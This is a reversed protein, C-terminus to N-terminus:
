CSLTKKLSRYKGARNSAACTLPNCWRKKSNKTKDLFLSGCQCKKICQMDASQLLDGAQKIIVWLPAAMEENTRFWMEQLGYPTIEFRLHNNAENTILNFHEIVQEHVPVDTILCHILENLMERAMIVRNLIGTAEHHYCYQELDLINYEDQDIIKIEYCWTLFDNYSNLYEKTQKGGRNRMTNIFQLVPINGDLPCLDVTGAYQIRQPRYRILNIKNM